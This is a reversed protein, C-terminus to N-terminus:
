KHIMRVMILCSRELDIIGTNWMVDVGQEVTDLSWTIFLFIKWIDIM